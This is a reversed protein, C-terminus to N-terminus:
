RKGSASEAVEPFACTVYDLDFLKRGIMTMDSCVGACIGCDVAEGVINVTRDNIGLSLAIEPYEHHFDPLSPIPINHRIHYIMGIAM